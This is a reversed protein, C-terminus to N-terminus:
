VELLVYFCKVLYEGLNLLSTKMNHAGFVLNVAVDPQLSCFEITELKENWSHFPILLEVYSDEM